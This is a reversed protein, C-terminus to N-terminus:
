ILIYKFKTIFKILTSYQMIIKSEESNYNSLSDNYNNNKSHAMVDHIKNRVFNIKNNLEDNYKIEENYNINDHIIDYKLQNLMIYTANPCIPHFYILIKIISKRFNHLTEKM